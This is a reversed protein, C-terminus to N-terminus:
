EKEGGEAASFWDALRSRAADVGTKNLASFLQVSVPVTVDAVAKRVAFLQQNAANRKLKDSKSLLIHVPMAYHEVWKLMMRDFEKLPHRVDMVLFLGVLCQRQELYAGMQAQWERKLHEPVQAYGYGPLDGLRWEPTVAFFNILQTRGPTKSTRALGSHDVLANLASSKGANSRGAFAIEVGAEPPCQDLSPASTLFRTQRLIPTFDDPSMPM